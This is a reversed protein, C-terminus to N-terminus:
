KGGVEISKRYSISAVFDILIFVVTFIFLVIALIISFNNFHNGGYRIMESNIRRNDYFYMKGEHKLFLLPTEQKLYKENTYFSDIPIVIPSLEKVEEDKTFHESIFSQQWTPYRKHLENITICILPIVLSTIIIVNRSVTLLTSFDRYNKDATDIKKIKWPFFSNICFVAIFFLVILFTYVNFELILSYLASAVLVLIEIWLKFREKIPTNNIETM